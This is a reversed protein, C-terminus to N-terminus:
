YSDKKAYCLNRHALAIIALQGGELLLVLLSALSNPLLHLLKRAQTALASCM